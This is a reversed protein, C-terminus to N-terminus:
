LICTPLRKANVARLSYLSINRCHCRAIGYVVLLTEKRSRLNNKERWVCGKCKGKVNEVNNIECNPRM